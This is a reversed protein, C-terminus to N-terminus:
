GKQKEESLMEESTIGPSICPEKSASFNELSCYGVSIQMYINRKEAELYYKGIIKWHKNLDNKDQDLKRKPSSHRYTEESTM